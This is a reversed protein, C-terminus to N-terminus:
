LLCSLLRHLYSRSVIFESGTDKNTKYYCHVKNTENKDFGHWFERKTNSAYGVTLYGTGGLQFGDLTSELGTGFFRINCAIPNNSYHSQHTRNWGSSYKQHLSPMLWNGYSSHEVVMSTIAFRRPIDVTNWSKVSPNGRFYTSLKTGDLGEIDAYGVMKAAAVALLSFVCGLLLAKRTDTMLQFSSIWLSQDAGGQAM